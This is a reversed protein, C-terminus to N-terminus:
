TIQDRINIKKGEEDYIDSYKLTFVAKESVYIIQGWFNFLKNLGNEVQTKKPAGMDVFRDHLDVVKTYLDGGWRLIEQVKSNYFTYNENTSDNTVVM